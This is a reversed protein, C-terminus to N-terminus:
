PHHHSDHKLALVCICISFHQTPLDTWKIKGSDAKALKLIQFLKVEESM